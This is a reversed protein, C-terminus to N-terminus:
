KKIDEVVEQLEEQSNISFKKKSESSLITYEEYLRNLLSEDLNDILEFKTNIDSTGLFMEIDVGGISLLSACLIQRRMEFPMQVTGDFKSSESLAKRMEGSKLTRLEYTTNQINVTKSHRTMGLLMEIRRKAGDSIENKFEKRRGFANAPVPNMPQPINQRNFDNVENADPVVFEQFNASSVNISKKGIPSDFESM